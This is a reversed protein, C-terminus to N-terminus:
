FLESNGSENNKETQTTEGDVLRVGLALYIYPNLFEVEVTKGLLEAPDLPGLGGDILLDVRYERGDDGICMHADLCQSYSVIKLRM